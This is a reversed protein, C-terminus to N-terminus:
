EAGQEPDVAYAVKADIRYQVIKGDRVVATSRLVDLGTVNPHKAFERNVLQQAADEWSEKSEGVLEVARMTARPAPPKKTQSM